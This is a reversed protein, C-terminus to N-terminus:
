IRIPGAEKLRQAVVAVHVQAASRTGRSRILDGSLAHHRVPQRRRACGGTSRGHAAGAPTEGVPVALSASSASCVRVVGARGGITSSSPTGIGVAGGAGFAGGAGGGGPLLVM